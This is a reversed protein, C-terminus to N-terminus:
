TEGRKLRALYEERTMSRSGAEERRVRDRGPLVDLNKWPAMEDGRPEGPVFPFTETRQYRHVYRSCNVFAEYVKVVLLLEAGPFAALEAEVRTACIFVITAAM